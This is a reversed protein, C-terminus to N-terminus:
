RRGGISGDRSTRRIPENGSHGRHSASRVLLGRPRTVAYGIFQIAPASCCRLRFDARKRRALRLLAERRGAVGMTGAATATDRATGASATTDAASATGAVGKTPVDEGM